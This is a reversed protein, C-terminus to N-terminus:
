HITKLVKINALSGLFILGKKSLYGFYGLNKLTTIWVKFFSAVEQTGKPLKFKGEEPYRCVNNSCTRLQYFHVKSFQFFKGTLFLPM